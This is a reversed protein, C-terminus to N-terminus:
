ESFTKHSRGWQLKFTYNDYKQICVSVTYVMAKKLTEKNLSVIASAVFSVFLYSNFHFAFIVIPWPHSATPCLSQVCGITIEYCEASHPTGQNLGNQV